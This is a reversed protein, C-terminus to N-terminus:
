LNSKNLTFFFLVGDKVNKIGYTSKHKDLITKVIALGLGTGGENRNRSKDVRYFRNWIEGLFEDPINEGKNKITLYLEKGKDECRIDIYGYEPVYRIANSIINTIVQEIKKKDAYVYRCNEDIMMNISLLIYKKRIEEGFKTTIKLILEEINFSNIDLKNELSELKSLELMEKIMSDMKEVEDIITALYYEEKDESIDEKICEAFGRIIGLPTKLEHSINATFEKRKKEQIREIEIDDQLKENAEKLEIINENLTKSLVNLSNSLSGLEDNSKVESYESFDLNIMKKAAKDMEILPKSIFKSYLISLIMIAFFALIAFYIFYDNFLYKIENIPQLSIVSFITEELNSKKINKRFVLYEIQSEDEYIYYKINNYENEYSEDDYLWYRYARNWLINRKYYNLGKENLSDEIDLIRGKVEIINIEQKNQITNETKFVDNYKKLIAEDFYEIGNLKFKYPAIKKSNKQEILGEVYIEDGIIPKFDKFADLYSINNSNIEYVNGDDNKISIIYKGYDDKYKIAGFEDIIIMFSNNIDEFMNVESVLSTKDWDNNLYKVSFKEMNEINNEIKKDLYIKEYFITQFMSIAILFVMFTTFTILFLKIVISNKKM